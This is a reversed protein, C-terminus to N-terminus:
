HTEPLTLPPKFTNFVITDSGDEALLPIINIIPLQSFAEAQAGDVSDSICGDTDIQLAHAQSRGHQREHYVIWVTGSEINMVVYFSEFAPITTTARHAFTLVRRQRGLTLVATADLSTREFIEREIISLALARVNLSDPQAQWFADIAALESTSARAVSDVLPHANDPACGRVIIESPM